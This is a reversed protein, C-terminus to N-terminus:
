NSALPGDYHKVAKYEHMTSKSFDECASLRILVETGTMHQSGDLLYKKPLFHHCSRKTKILHGM